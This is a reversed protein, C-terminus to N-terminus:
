RAIDIETKLKRNEGITYNLRVLKHAYVHLTQRRKVEKKRNDEESPILDKIKKLNEQYEANSQKYQDELILYRRYFLFLLWYIHESRM